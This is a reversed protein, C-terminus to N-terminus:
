TSGIMSLIKLEPTIKIHTRCCTSESTKMGTEWIVERALRSFM